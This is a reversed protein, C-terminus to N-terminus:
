LCFGTNCTHLSCIVSSAPPTYRQFEKKFKPSGHIQFQLKLGHQIQFQANQFTMTEVLTIYSFPVSSLINQKQLGGKANPVLLKGFLFNLHFYFVCVFVDGTAEFMCCRLVNFKEVGLIGKNIQCFPRIELYNTRNQAREHIVRTGVFIYM